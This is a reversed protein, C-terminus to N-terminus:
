LNPLVKANKLLQSHKILQATALRSGKRGGVQVYLIASWEVHPKRAAHQVGCLM